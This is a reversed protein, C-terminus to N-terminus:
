VTDYEFIYEQPTKGVKEGFLRVNLFSPQDAIAPERQSCIKAPFEYDSSLVRFGMQVGFLGTLAERSFRFYDYPYAHLPFSQHTQIFLVGGIRLAKMVEHAARHPYKFHEFTSCSIIVDFQEEGTTQTLRHVDAVLDVDEGSEIDTGLYEGANPIWVDHRTSRSAISRKTGLELVRPSEMAQCRRVFNDLLTAETFSEERGRGFSTGPLGVRDVFRHLLSM